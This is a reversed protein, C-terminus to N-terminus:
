DALAIVETPPKVAAFRLVCDWTCFHLTATSDGGTVFLFGGPRPAVSRVHRECDPGDCYYTRELSM